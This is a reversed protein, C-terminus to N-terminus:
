QKIEVSNLDSWDTQKRKATQGKITAGNSGDNALKFHSVDIQKASIQAAALWKITAMVSRM